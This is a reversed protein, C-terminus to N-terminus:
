RGAATASAPFRAGASPAWFEAQGPSSRMPRTPRAVRRRAAPMQPATGEQSAWGDPTATPIKDQM